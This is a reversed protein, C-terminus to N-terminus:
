VGPRRNADNVREFAAAMQELVAGMRPTISWVWVDQLLWSWTRAVGAALSRSKGPDYEAEELVDRITALFEVEAQSPEIDNLRDMEVSHVWKCVFLACDWGAIAHAPSWRLAATKRVLMHGMRVPIRLGEFAKVVADFLQPSRELKTVAFSSAFAKVAAPDSTMLSPRTVGNAVSFLRIYAMRLTAQCNFIQSTGEEQGKEDEAEESQAANILLEHSRALSRVAASMLLSSVPDRGPSTTPALAQAVQVVQWVHVVVAHMLLLATFPSLRCATIRPSDAKSDSMISALGDRLTQYDQQHQNARLESWEAETKANWLSEDHLVEIELDTTTNFCPNNDWIIVHVTSAVYIGGLLRKWSERRVWSSWTMKTIDLNEAALSLRTKNYVSQNLDRDGSLAAYATFLLKTQIVWLPPNDESSLGSVAEISQTGIVYLRQARRRDLRYLAGICCMALTLPSPTNVTSLTPLHIFPQHRYYCEMFSALFGQLLKSSPIDQSVDPRGLREALDACITAHLADDAVFNSIRPPQDKVLRPLNS